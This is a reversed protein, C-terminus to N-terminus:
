IRADMQYSLWNDWKASRWIWYSVITSRFYYIIFLNSHEAEDKYAQVQFWETSLEPKQKLFDTNYTCLPHSQM